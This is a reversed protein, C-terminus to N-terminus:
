ATRENPADQNNPRPLPRALGGGDSLKPDNPGECARRLFWGLGLGLFVHGCWFAWFAISRGKFDLLKFDLIRSVAQEGNVAAGASRNNGDLLKEVDVRLKRDEGLLEPMVDCSSSACNTFPEGLADIADGGMELAAEIQVRFGDTICDSELLEELQERTWTKM